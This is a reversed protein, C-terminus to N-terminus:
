DLNVNEFTKDFVIVGILNMYLSYNLRIRIIFFLIGLFKQSETM